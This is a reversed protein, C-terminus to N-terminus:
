YVWTSDTKCRVTIASHHKETRVKFWSGKLVNEREQGVPSSLSLAAKTPVQHADAEIWWVLSRLGAEGRLIEPSSRLKWCDKSEICQIKGPLTAALDHGGM